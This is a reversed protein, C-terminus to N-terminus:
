DIMYQFEFRVNADDTFNACQLISTGTTVRWVQVRCRAADNDASIVLNQSATDLGLGDGFYVSGGGESSAVSSSTFPLGLIRSNNGVTIGSVSNLVCHANCFVRNGIRTYFGLQTGHGFASDDDQISPTWTGQEYTIATAPPSSITGIVGSRAGTQNIIGSM